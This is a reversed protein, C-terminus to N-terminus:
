HIEFGGSARLFQVFKEVEERSVSLGYPPTVRGPSVSVYFREDVHTELYDELRNALVKCEDSDEIGAGKQESWEPRVPVGAEHLVYTLVEWTAKEATFREGQASSPHKGEIQISV